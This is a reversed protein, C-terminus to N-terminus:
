KWRRSRVSRTYGKKENNDADMDEQPLEPVNGLSAEDLRYTCLWSGETPAIEFELVHDGHKCTGAWTGDTEQLFNNDQNPYKGSKSRVEKVPEGLVSEIVKALAKQIKESTGLNDEAFDFEEEDDEAVLAAANVGVIDEVFPFDCPDVKSLMELVEVLQEPELGEVCEFRDLLSVLSVDGDAYSHSLHEAYHHPIDWPSGKSANWLTQAVSLYKAQYAADSM